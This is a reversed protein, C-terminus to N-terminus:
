RIFRAEKLFFKYRQQMFLISTIFFLLCKAKRYLTVTINLKLRM